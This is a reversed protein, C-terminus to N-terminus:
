TRIYWHVYQYSQFDQFCAIAPAVFLHILVVAIVQLHAIRQAIIPQSITVKCNARQVVKAFAQALMVDLCADVQQFLGELLDRIRLNHVHLNAGPHLAKAEREFRKLFSDSHQFGPLIIKLAVERELHTDFAKYVSAMGGEGLKEIVHYRGIARGIIDKMM